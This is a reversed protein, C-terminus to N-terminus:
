IDELKAVWMGREARVMAKHFPFGLPQCLSSLSCQVALGAAVAAAMTTTSNMTTTPTMTNDM